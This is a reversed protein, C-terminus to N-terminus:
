EEKAKIVFNFKLGRCEKKSWIIVKKVLYHIKKLLRVICKAEKKNLEKM